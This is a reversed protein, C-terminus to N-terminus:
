TAVSVQTDHKLRPKQPGAKGPAIARNDNASFGQGRHGRPRITSEGRTPASSVNWCFAPGVMVLVGASPTKPNGRRRRRQRQELIAHMGAVLSLASSGTAPVIEPVASSAFTLRALRQEETM